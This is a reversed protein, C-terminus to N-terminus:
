LKSKVNKAFKCVFIKTMQKITTLSSLSPDRGNENTSGKEFSYAEDALSVFLCDLLTTGGQYFHGFIISTHEYVKFGCLLKICAPGSYKLVCIAPLYHPGGEILSIFFFTYILHLLRKINEREDLPM